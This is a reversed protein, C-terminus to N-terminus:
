KSNIVYSYRVPLFLQNLILNVPTKRSNVLYLLQVYRKIKYHIVGPNMSPNYLAFCTKDIGCKKKMPM